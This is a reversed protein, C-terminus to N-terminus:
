RLFGEDEHLVQEAHPPQVKQISQYMIDDARPQNLLNQQNDVVDLGKSVDIGFAPDIIGRINESFQVCLGSLQMYRRLTLKSEPLGLSPGIGVIGYAGVANDPVLLWSYGVGKSVEVHYM